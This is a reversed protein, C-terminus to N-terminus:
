SGVPQVAAVVMQESAASARQPASAAPKELLACVRSCVAERLVPVQAAGALLTYAARRAPRTEHHMRPDRHGLLRLERVQFETAAITRLFDKVTLGNQNWLKDTAEARLYREYPVGQKELLKECASRLQRTTFLLNLGPLRTAYGHLHSGGLVDYYPPFVTALRGGPRLVRWCEDVTARPSVVHELVDYMTILDFSEPAFPLAEGRGLAFAVNKAGVRAAFEKARSVKEEEIEVGVVLRAGYREFWVASGGFGSGLDLVDRGDFLEAAGLGFWHHFPRTTELEFEEEPRPASDKFITTHPPFREFIALLLPDSWM